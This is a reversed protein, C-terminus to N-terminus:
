PCALAHPDTPQFSGLITDVLTQDAAVTAPPLPTPTPPPSEIGLGKIYPRIGDDVQFHANATEFIWGAQPDYQAPLGNFSDHLLPFPQCYWHREFATRIPDATISVWPSADGQAPDSLNFYENTESASGTRDGFTGVSSDFHVTWNPPLRISFLGAPDRYTQWDAPVPPAAAFLGFPLPIGVAALAAVTALIAALPLVVARLVNVALRRRRRPPRGTSAAPTTAPVQSDPPQM